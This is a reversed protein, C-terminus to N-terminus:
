LCELKPSNNFLFYTILGIKFKKKLNYNLLKLLRLRINCHLCLLIKFPSFYILWLDRGRFKLALTTLKNCFATMIFFHLRFSLCSRLEIRALAINKTTIAMFLWLM